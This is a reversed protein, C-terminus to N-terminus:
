ARLRSLAPVDADANAARAPTPRADASRRRPSRGAAARARRACTARRAPSRGAAFVVGGKTPSARMVAVLRTWMRDFWRRDLAAAPTSPDLRLEFLLGNRIVNGIGAIIRQELLANRQKESWLECRIPAVLDWTAVRSALRLRVSPRPEGAAPFWKGAMGLHVHVLPEFRSFAHKGEVGALQKAHRRAYDHIPHAEPVVLGRRRQVLARAHTADESAATADITVEAPRRARAPAIDPAFGTAHSM